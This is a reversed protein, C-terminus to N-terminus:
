RVGDVRRQIELLKFQKELHQLVHQIVDFPSSVNTVATIESTFNKVSLRCDSDNQKEEESTDTIQEKREQTNQVSVLPVM